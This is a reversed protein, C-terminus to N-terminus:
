AALGARRRGGVRQGPAVLSLRRCSGSDCPGGRPNIGRRVHGWDRSCYPGDIGVWDSSVHEHEGHRRFPTQLQNLVEAVDM